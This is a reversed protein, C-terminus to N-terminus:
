ETAPPRYYADIIVIRGDDDLTFVNVNEHLELGRGLDVGFEFPAVAHRGDCSTYVPGSLRHSRMVGM